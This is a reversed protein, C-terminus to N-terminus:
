SAFTKRTPKSSTAASPSTTAWSSRACRTPSRPRSSRSRCCPASADPGDDHRAVRRLGDRRSGEPAPLREQSESERRPVEGQGRRRAPLGEGQGGPDLLPAAPRRLRPRQEGDRDDTPLLVDAAPHPHPQRRRRRRRAPHDQRLPGQDRRLRGRRGRRDGLHASPDRHEEPDQRHAGERREPDQGPHAPDGPKASKARGEGIRGGLQRRRHLARMRASRQSSCDVLKGPLGAGDLASKRRTLDRAQRAAMRARSAQVSKAVIQGGEKPNEELWDALRENTAREVLSRISVNGLKGKTQGEFQPEALRVSIIATLGERIDEGLLNDDKEKLLNRKRAYRNVVNTIAKRFGEEHM